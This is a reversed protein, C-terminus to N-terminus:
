KELINWDEAKQTNTVQTVMRTGQLYLKKRKHNHNRIDREAVECKSNVLKIKKIVKTTAM